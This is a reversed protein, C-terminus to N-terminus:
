ELSSFLKFQQYFADRAEPELRSAFWFGFSLFKMYKAPLSPKKPAKTPAVVLPEIVVPAVVVSEVVVQTNSM